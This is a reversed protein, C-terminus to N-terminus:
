CSIKINISATHLEIEKVRTIFMLGFLLETRGSSCLIFKVCRLNLFDM